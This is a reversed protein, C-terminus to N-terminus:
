QIERSTIHVQLFCFGVNTILLDHTRTGCIAGYSLVRSSMSNELTKRKGSFLEFLRSFRLLYSFHLFFSFFMDCVFFLYFVVVGIHVNIYSM